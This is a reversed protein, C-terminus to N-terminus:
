TGELVFSLYLKSPIGELGAWRGCSEGPSTVHLHAPPPLWSILCTPVTRNSSPFCPAADAGQDNPLCTDERGLEGM